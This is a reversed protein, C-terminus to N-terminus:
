DSEDDSDSEEGSSSSSSSSSTQYGGSAQGGMARDGDEDEDDENDDESSSSSSSSSSGPGATTEDESESDSDSESSSSSDDLNSVRLKRRRKGSMDKSGVAKIGDVADTTAEVEDGATMTESSSTATTDTEGSDSLEELVIEARMRKVVRLTVLDGNPGTTVYEVEDFTRRKGGSKGRQLLETLVAQYLAQKEMIEATGEPFGASGQIEDNSRVEMATERLRTRVFGKLDQIYKYFIGIDASPIANIDFAHRILLSQHNKNFKWSDRSSNWQRLYELAPQLSATSTQTQNKKAPGKAKKPQAENSNKSSALDTASPSNKTPTDGFTVSKKKKLPESPTKNGTREDRRPKKASLTSSAGAPPAADELRRKNSQAPPRHTSSSPHGVAAPAGDTGAPQKLKLGLRKWAPVSQSMAGQASTM